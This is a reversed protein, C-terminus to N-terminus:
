GQKNRVFLFGEDTVEVRIIGEKQLDSHVSTFKGRLTRYQLVRRIAEGWGIKDPDTAVLTYDVAYKCQYSTVDSGTCAKLIKVM